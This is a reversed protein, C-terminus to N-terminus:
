RGYNEGGGFFGNGNETDYQVRTYVATNGVMIPNQGSDQCSMVGTQCYPASLGTGLEPLAEAGDQQTYCDASVPAESYNDHEDWEHSEEPPLDYGIMSLARAVAATEASELFFHGAAHADSWIRMAHATALVEGENEITAKVIAQYPTM